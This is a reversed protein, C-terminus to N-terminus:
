SRSYRPDTIPDPRTSLLQGLKVFTPGLEEMTARLKSAPDPVSVPQRLRRPVPPAARPADIAAPGMNRAITVAVQYQRALHRRRRVFVCGRTNGELPSVISDNPTARPIAKM